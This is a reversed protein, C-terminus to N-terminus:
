VMMRGRAITTGQEDDVADHGSMAFRVDRGWVNEMYLCIWRCERYMM